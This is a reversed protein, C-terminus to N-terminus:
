TRNRQKKEGNQQTRNQKARSQESKNKGTGNLETRQQALMGHGLCRMALASFPEAPSIMFFDPRASILGSASGEDTIFLSITHRFLRGPHRSSRSIVLSFSPGQQLGDARFFAVLFHSSIITGASATLGLVRLRRRPEQHLFFALPWLPGLMGHGLCGIAWTSPDVMPVM